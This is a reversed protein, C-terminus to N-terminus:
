IQAATHLPQRGRAAVRWSTEVRDVRLGYIMEHLHVVICVHNPLIRVQEGLGPRWGTKSLDLIGHEESLKVVTVEPRDL